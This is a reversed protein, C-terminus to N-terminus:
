LINGTWQSTAIGITCEYCARDVLERFFLELLGQFDCYPGRGRRRRERSCDGLVDLFGMSSATEKTSGSFIPESVDVRSAVNEHDGVTGEANRVNPDHDCVM